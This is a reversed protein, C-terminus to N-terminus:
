TSKLFTLEHNLTQIIWSFTTCAAVGIASTNTQTVTPPASISASFAIDCIGFAFNIAVVVHALKLRRVHPDEIKFTDLRDRKARHALSALPFPADYGSM